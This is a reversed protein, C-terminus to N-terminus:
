IGFIKKIIVAIINVVGCNARFSGVANGSLVIDENVAEAYGVYENYAALYEAMAEEAGEYSMEVFQANYYCEVLAAYKEDETQCAKYVAVAEIFVVSSEAIRDLKIKYEDYIEVARAAGDVRSDLYYYLPTAAEFYSRQEGYTEATRMKEVLNVFYVANQVLVEAYDKERLILEAKCTDLNNLLKVIREDKYNIDNAEVYRELVSVMGMKEIYQDSALILGLVEEIYAVHQDQLLAYFYDYANNFFEISEKIGEYDVAYLPMGNEDKGLVIDKVIFLYKNMEEFHEIWEEETNYESILNMCYVIKASNSEKILDVIYSDAELYTQYASILEKFNNRYPNATDLILSIDIGDNDVLEKARAYYREKAQLTPASKFRTIHRIFATANLDYTAERVIQNFILTYEGYDPSGNENNDAESNILGECSGLFNNIVSAKQQRLSVTNTSRAVKQLDVVLKVFEELNKAKVDALLVDLDFDLYADVAAKLEASAEVAETYQGEGTEEDITVWYLSIMEEARGHAVTRASVTNAENILYDVYYIFREGDTMDTLRTLNRYSNGGYVVLNDYAVEGSSGSNNLRLHVKNHEYTTAGQYKADYETVLEGEVYLKYTFLDYDFVIAIHLWEGKVIADKLVVTSKDNTCIDGNGNVYFYCPPFFGAGPVSGTEITVGGDQFDGFTTIDFEFVFGDKPVVASMVSKEQIYSSIKGTTDFIKHVFYKNGNAEELIGVQNKSDKLDVTWESGVNTSDMGVAKEQWDEDFYVPLDYNTILNNYDLATLNAEIAREQAAELEALTAALDAVSYSDGSLPFEAIIRKAKNIAIQNKGTTLTTEIDADINGVLVGVARVIAPDLKTKLAALGETDEPLEFLGLLKAIKSMGDYAVSATVGDVDVVTVYADAGAVTVKHAAAIAADYGDASSDIKKTDLYEAVKLIANYKAAANTAGEATAILKNLDEVTGTNDDAAFAAFVCGVTLLAFVCIVVLMKKFNRM